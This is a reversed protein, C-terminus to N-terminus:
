LWSTIFAAGAGAWREQLFFCLFKPVQSLLATLSPGGSISGWVFLFACASLERDFYLLKNLVVSYPKNIREQFLHAMVCVCVRARVCVYVCPSERELLAHPHPNSHPIPPSFPVPHPTPGHPHFLLQFIHVPCRATRRVCVIFVASALFECVEPLPPLSVSQMPHSVRDSFFFCLLLLFTPQFTLFFSFVLCRVFYVRAGSLTCKAQSRSRKESLCLSCRPSAATSHCRVHNRPSARAGSSSGPM